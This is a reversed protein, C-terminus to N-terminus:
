KQGIAEKRVKDEPRSTNSLYLECRDDCHLHLRYRGGAPPVFFGRSRSSFHNMESAFAHPMSDVWLRSHGTMNVDYSWIDTLDRPRTDNWVEM